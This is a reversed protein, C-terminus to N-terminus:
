WLKTDGPKRELTVKPLMDSNGFHIAEHTNYSCCIVFEPDMIWDSHKVLDDMTIPNLHHIYIHDVIDYGDVALDCAKDRLIIKQRFHRWEPSQYFRQNLYRGSGFTEIGVKSGIKLYDFREDFTKLKIAESYTRIM